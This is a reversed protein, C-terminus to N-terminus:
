LYRPVFMCIKWLRVKRCISEKGFDRGIFSEETLIPFGIGCSQGRYKETMKLEFWNGSDCHIYRDAEVRSHGAFVLDANKKTMHRYLFELAKEPLYDDSDLFYIYEGSAMDLGTNWAAYVGGNKQHIVRIRSDAGAYEDCIVGCRDPSEDDVLILEWDSFTQELVSDVSQASIKGCQIGSAHNFDHRIRGM